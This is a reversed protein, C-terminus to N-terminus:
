SNLNLSLSSLELQLFTKNTVANNSHVDPKPSKSTTRCHLIYAKIKFTLNAHITFAITRRSCIREAPGNQMRTPKITVREVSKGSVDRIGQMIGHGKRRCRGKM